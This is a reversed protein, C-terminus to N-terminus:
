DNISKGYLGDRHHTIQEKAPIVPLEKLGDISTVANQSNMMNVYIEIPLMSNEECSINGDDAEKYNQSKHSDDQVSIDVGLEVNGM